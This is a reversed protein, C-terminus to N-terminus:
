PGLGFVTHGSPGQDRTVGESENAPHCMSNCNSCDCSYFSWCLGRVNIMERAYPM